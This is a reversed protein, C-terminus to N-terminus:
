ARLLPLVIRRLRETTWSPQADNWGDDALLGRRDITFSVPIRWVRGYAGAYASGLLGVPFGLGAAVERVAPLADPTDLSFGLVELGQRRHREHFASLLPLEERCPGCWTAWFTAIVVKGLLERTAISRGDLSHLVLPPAPAGVRLAEDARAGPAVAGLLLWALARRLSERRAVLTASGEHLPHPTM